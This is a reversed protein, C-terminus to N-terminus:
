SATTRCTTPGGCTRTRASTRCADRERADQRRRRVPDDLGGQAGSACEDRLPLLRGLDARHGVRLSRGSRHRGHVPRGATGREAAHVDRQAHQIRVARRPRRRRHERPPRPQHPLQRRGGVLALLVRRGQDARRLARTAQRRHQGGHDAAGPGAADRPAQRRNRRHREAPRLRRRGRAPEEEGIRLRRDSPDARAGLRRGRRPAVRDAAAALTRRRRARRVRRTVDAWDSDRNGGFVRGLEARLAADDANM